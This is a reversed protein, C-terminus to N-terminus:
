FFNGNNDRYIVFFLVEICQFFFQLLEQWMGKEPM